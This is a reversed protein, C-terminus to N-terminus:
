RNLEERMKKIELKLRLEHEKYEPTQMYAKMKDSEMHAKYEEETFPRKFRTFHEPIRVNGWMTSSTPTYKKNSITKYKVKYSRKHRSISIVGGIFEVGFCVYLIV